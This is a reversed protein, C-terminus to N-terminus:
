PKTRRGSDMRNIRGVRTIPFSISGYGRSISNRRSCVVGSIRASVIKMQYAWQGVEYQSKPSDFPESQGLQDGRDWNPCYGAIGDMSLVIM